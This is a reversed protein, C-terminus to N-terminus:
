QPTMSVSAEMPAATTAFGRRCRTTPSSFLVENM